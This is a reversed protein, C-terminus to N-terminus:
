LQDNIEGIYLGIAVCKDVNKINKNNMKVDDAFLYM